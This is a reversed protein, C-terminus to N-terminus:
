ASKVAGGVFVAHCNNHVQSCRDRLLPRVAGRLRAHKQFLQQRQRPVNIHLNRMEGPSSSTHNPRRKMVPVDAARSSPRM